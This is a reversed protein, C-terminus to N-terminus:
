LGNRHAQYDAIAADIEERGTIHRAIHQLLPPRGYLIVFTQFHIQKLQDFYFINMQVKGKRMKENMVLHINNM